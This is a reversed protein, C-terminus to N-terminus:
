RCPRTGFDFTVFYQNQVDVTDISALSFLLVAFLAAAASWLFRRAIVTPSM